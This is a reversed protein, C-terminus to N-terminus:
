VADEAETLYGYEKMQRVYKRIDAEVDTRSNIDYEEMILDATQEFTRHEEICRFIRAAVDNIELVYRCYKRATRDSVLLYADCIELLVIGNRIRLKNM